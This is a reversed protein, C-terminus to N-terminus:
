PQPLVKADHYAPIAKFKIEKIEATARVVKPSGGVAAVNNHDSHDHSVTVIDASEGIKGYALISGTAYPDTVIKIGTSSTIM